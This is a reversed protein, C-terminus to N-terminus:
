RLLQRGAQDVVQVPSGYQPYYNWPMPSVVGQMVRVAHVFGASDQARRALFALMEEAQLLHGLNDGKDQNDLSLSKPRRGRVSSEAAGAVQSAVGLNARTVAGQERYRQANNVRHTISTLHQTGETVAVRFPDPLALRNPLEPWIDLSRREAFQQDHVSSVRKLVQSHRGAVSQLLEFAISVPLVADPDVVLPSDAEM